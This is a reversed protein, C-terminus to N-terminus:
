SQGEREALLRALRRRAAGGRARDGVTDATLALLRWAGPERGAHAVLREAGAVADADRDALFAIAVQRHLQRIREPDTHRVRDIALHSATAGLALLLYAGLLWGRVPGAWTSTGILGVLLVATAVLLAPLLLALGLGVRGRLVHGAGPFPLNMLATGLM